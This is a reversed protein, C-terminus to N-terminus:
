RPWRDGRPCSNGDSNSGAPLSARDKGSYKDRNSLLFHIHSLQQPHDTAFSRRPSGAHDPLARSHLPEISIEHRYSWFHHTIFSNDTINHRVERHSSDRSSLATYYFRTFPRQPYSASSSLVDNPIATVTRAIPVRYLRSTTHLTALFILSQTNEFSMEDNLTMETHRLFSLEFAFQIKRLFAAPANRVSKWPPQRTVTAWHRDPLLQAKCTRLGLRSLTSCQFHPKFTPVSGALYDPSSRLDSHSLPPLTHTMITLSRRPSKCRHDPM